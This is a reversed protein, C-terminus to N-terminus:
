VRQDDYEHRTQSIKENQYDPHDRYPEIEICEVIEQHDAGGGRSAFETLTPARRHHSSTDTSPPTSRSSSDDQIIGASQQLHDKKRRQKVNAHWQKIAHITHEELIASKYKSGM